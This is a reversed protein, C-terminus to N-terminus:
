EGAGQYEPNEVVPAFEGQPKAERDGGSCGTQLTFCFVALFLLTVNTLKM